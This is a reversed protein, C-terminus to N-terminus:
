NRITRRGEARPLSGLAVLLGCAAVFAALSFTWAPGVATWLWGSGVAGSMGGAGFSISSYLAQGRARTAEGFWRGLLAMACVHHAGFTAGHLLQAILQISLSEPFWGVLVFRLAALAFCAAFVVDTARPGMWRPMTWFVVIEAVVGLSWLLGITSKAYGHDSLFITYFSYLPGHAVTMLLCAAFLAIVEPRRVIDGLPVPAAGATSAAAPLSWSAACALMLLATTTVLVSVPSWHDLQWGTALVAAIFGISGWLRIPGYRALRERLSSLTITEVLPNVGGACFAHVALVLALGAFDVTLFLGAFSVVSLLLAIRLLRVRQGSRDALRAWYNPAFIRVFQMTGLLLGIAQASQGISQFYLSLYPAYAGVYAFYAFYM